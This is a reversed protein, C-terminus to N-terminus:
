DAKNGLKQAFQFLLAQAALYNEDAAKQLYPLAEKPKGTGFLAAGLQFNYRPNEPENELARRCAIEAKVPDYETWPIEPGVRQIDTPVSGLADCPDLKPSGTKSDTSPSRLREEIKELFTIAAPYGLDAARKMTSIALHHEGLLALSIAIQYNHRPNDPNEKLADTCAQTVALPNYALQGIPQIIADKDGPVSGIRDCLSLTEGNARLNLGFLLGVIVTCASLLPIKM